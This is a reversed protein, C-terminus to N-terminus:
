FLFKLGAMFGGLDLTDLVKPDDIDWELYRYGFIADFRDFRYGVAGLVQFTLDSGGAGIDAHYSAYWKDNFQWQGRAGVVGDWISESENTKTQAPPPPLSINFEQNFEIWLYRAGGILHVSLRDGDFVEYGLLPTVIWAKLGFNELEILPNFRAEVDDDIDLYIVDSLLTWKGRRAAFVAMGALNLDQVIDVFDIQLHQGDPTKIDIDPGWLYAEVGWNWEDDTASQVTAAMSLAILAGLLIRVRYM